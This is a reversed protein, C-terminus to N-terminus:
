IIITMKAMDRVFFAFHLTIKYGPEIHFYKINYLPMLICVLSMFTIFVVM